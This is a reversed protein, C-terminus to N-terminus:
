IIEWENKAQLYLRLVFIFQKKGGHMLLRLLRTKRNNVGSTKLYCTKMAVWLQNSTIETLVDSDMFSLIVLLGSLAGLFKSYIYPDIGNVNQQIFQEYIQVMDEVSKLSVQHMTSDGRQVYQYDTYGTLIVPEQLDISSFFKINFDLDEFVIGPTFQQNIFVDRRWARAYIETDIGSKQLFVTRAAEAASVVVTPHESVFKSPVSAFSNSVFKGSIALLANSGQNIAAMLHSVYGPGIFDDSDTFVIYETEESAEQVGTNRAVSQGQNPQSIIKTVNTSSECLSTVISLSADKSGDDVFIYEINEYDQNLITSITRDLYAEGNYISVILAVHKKM